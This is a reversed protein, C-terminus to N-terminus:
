KSVLKCNVQFFKHSIVKNKHGDLTSEVNRIERDLKKKEEQLSNMESEFAISDAERLCSKLRSIVGIELYVAGPQLSIPILSNSALLCKTVFVIDSKYM